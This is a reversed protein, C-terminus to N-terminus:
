VLRVVVTGEAQPKHDEVPEGRPVFYNTDLLESRMIAATRRVRAMALRSGKALNSPVGGFRILQNRLGREFFQRRAEDVLILPSTQDAAYLQLGDRWDVVLDDRYALAIQCPAKAKSTRFGLHVLDTKLDSAVKALEIAKVPDAVGGSAMTLCDNPVGCIQFGLEVKIALAIQQHRVAMERASADLNMDNMRPM